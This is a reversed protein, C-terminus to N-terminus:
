WSLALVVFVVALAGLWGLLAAVDNPQIANDVAAGITAPVLAESVQHLALGACGGLLLKWRGNAFLAFTFIRSVKWPAQKNSGPPCSQLASSSPMSVM